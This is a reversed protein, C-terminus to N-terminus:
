ATKVPITTGKAEATKPLTVTLVGDKFAAAVRSADVPSPLRMARAFSGYSRETRHHREDNEEKDQQKEGKIVLFQDQLSVHIDKQEVGPIEARVVIAEKTESLDIKPMWEGSLELAEDPMVDFFRDFLRDMEHRLGMTGMWPTLARM